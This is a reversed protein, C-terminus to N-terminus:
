AAATFMPFFHNWFMQKVGPTVVEVAKSEAGKTSSLDAKPTPFCLKFESKAFM